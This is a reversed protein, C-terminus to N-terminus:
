WIVFHLLGVIPQVFRFLMMLDLFQLSTVALLKLHLIWKKRCALVMYALFKHKRLTNMCLSMHHHTLFLSRFFVNSCNVIKDLNVEKYDFLDSQLKPDSWRHNPCCSAVMGMWIVSWVGMGMYIYIYIYEDFSLLFFIEFAYSQFISTPQDSPFLMSNVAHRCTSSHQHTNCDM